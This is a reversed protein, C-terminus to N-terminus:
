TKSETFFSELNHTQYIYVLPDQHNIVTPSSASHREQLNNLNNFIVDKGGYFIFWSFTLACIAFLTSATTFRKIRRKITLKRATQKLKNSTSAVFEERPNLPYAEKIIDFLDKDTQM